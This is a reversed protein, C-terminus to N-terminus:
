GMKRLLEKGDEGYGNIFDKYSMVNKGEVQIKNDPLFKIRRKHNLLEYEAWVGPWPYYARIMRKLVESTPPNNIDVFGSERTVKKTITEKSHDQEYTTLKENNQIKEIIIEIMESGQLFLKEKLFKLTEDGILQYEKQALIPGHDIIEDLYHITVGTVKDGNLITTQIPTSGKHHPLLSPHINIIGKPFTEIVNKKLIEGYSALIGLTPKLKVLQEIDKQNDFNSILVPINNKKLYNVFSGEQETTVVLVLGHKLLIEIIPITYSGSGFFVIKEM